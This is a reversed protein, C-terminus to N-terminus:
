LCQALDDIDHSVEDDEDDDGHRHVHRGNGFTAEPVRAPVVDGDVTLRGYTIGDHGKFAPVAIPDRGKLIQEVAIDNPGLLGLTAMCHRRNSSASLLLTGDSNTELAFTKFEGGRPWSHIREVTGGLTFRTLWIRPRRHEANDEDLVYYADDEGRYSAALPHSLTQSGLIPRPRYALLDFDFTVVQNLLRGQPDREGFFAV